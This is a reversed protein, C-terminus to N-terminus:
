EALKKFVAAHKELVYDGAARAQEDTAYRIERTGVPSSDTSKNLDRLFRLVEQQEEPTLAKIREIIEDATM